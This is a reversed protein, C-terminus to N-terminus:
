SPREYDGAIVLGRRVGAQAAMRSLMDDLTGLSEIGRAALHPIPEFGLGRLRAAPEVLEAHSRTPVATLYIPTRAPLVSKLADLDSAGLRTAELSFGGMFAAVRRMTEPPADAALKLAPAPM